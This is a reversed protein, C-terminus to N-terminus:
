DAVEGCTLPLRVEIRTGQGPQSSFAFSAGALKAREAMSAMGLGNKEMLSNTDFGVGTDSIVLLLEGPVLQLSVAAFPAHAHTVCNHLAEQVIRYIALAAARSLSPLTSDCSFRVELGTRSSFTACEANLADALGLADLLAPHLDRSIRQVDITLRELDAGIERCAQRPDPNSSAGNRGAHTALMSLAALRQTVDDHLERGLRRREDEQAVLLKQSLRRAEERQNRLEVDTRLLRAETEKFDSIDVASGIVQTVEGGDDFLPRKVVRFWRHRGAQDIVAQEPLVREMGSAIVENDMADIADMGPLTALPESPTQGEIEAPTRGYVAAAAQNVLSFSHDVSKAFLPDPNTDIVQRLFDGLRGLANAHRREQRRKTRLYLWTIGIVFIAIFSRFVTSEMLTPEVELSIPDSSEVWDQGPLRAQLRFRYQGPPLRPFVAEREPGGIEWDGPLGDLRFRFAISEARLFDIATYRIRLSREDSALRLVDAPARPRDSTWVGDVKIAAADLPQFSLQGPDVIAIGSITPFALRGDVFRTSNPSGWGNCEQERLGDRGSLRVLPLVDAQGHWWSEFESVLFRFVGENSSIWLGGNDDLTLSQAQHFPQGDRPGFAAVEDGRRRVIGMRESAIWLTGDTAETIARLRTLSSENPLERKWQEGNWSFLGDDGGALLLGRQDRHFFRVRDLGLGSASDHRVQRGDKWSVAGGKWGALWLTGPSAPDPYILYIGHDTVATLEDIPTIRGHEFSALGAATGVWLRGPRARDKALAWVTNSPLGDATSFRQVTGAAPDWYVLGDRYTGLVMSADEMALIGTPEAIAVGESAGVARVAGHRLRTLGHGFTGFWLDGRADQFMARIRWDLLGHSVPLRQPEDKSRHVLGDRDGFWLDGSRDAFLGEVDNAPVERHRTGTAPDLSWLGDACGTWVRGDKTLALEQGWCDPIPFVEQQGDRDIRWVAPEETRVWLSGDPGTTLARIVTGSSNGWRNAAAGHTLNLQWLGQTTGIWLLEDDQTVISTIQEDSLVDLRGDTLVRGDDVMRVGGHDLGVWIPGGNRAALASVASSPLTPTNSANWVRFAHGDFRALGAATGIWLFGQNDEVISRVWPSPLGHAVNWRDVGLQELSLLPEDTAGAHAGLSALLLIIVTLERCWRHLCGLRRPPSQETCTNM